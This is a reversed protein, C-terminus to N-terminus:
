PAVSGTITVAVRVCVEFVIERLGAKMKRDPGVLLVLACMLRPSGETAPSEQRNKRCQTERATARLQRSTWPPMMKVRSDNGQRVRVPLAVVVSGLSQDKLLNSIAGSVNQYVDHVEIGM